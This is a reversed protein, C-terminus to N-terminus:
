GGFLDGVDIGVSAMMQTNRHAVLEAEREERSRTVGGAWDALRTLAEELTAGARLHDDL